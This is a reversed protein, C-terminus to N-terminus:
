KPFWGLPIEFTKSCNIGWKSPKFHKILILKKKAKFLSNIPILSLLM